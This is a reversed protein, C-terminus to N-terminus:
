YEDTFGDIINLYYSTLGGRGNGLKKKREKKKEKKTKKKLFCGERRKKDYIL